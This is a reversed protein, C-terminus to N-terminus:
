RFRGGDLFRRLNVDDLAAEVEDLLYFPAPRAMALALCFGLAVLSYLVGAMLGGLVVELFFGM